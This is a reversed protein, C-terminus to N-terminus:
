SSAYTVTVIAGKCFDQNTGLNNMTITLGTWSGVASGSPVNAGVTATGGLTYHGDAVLCGATVHTADIAYSTATVAAVYTAGANSNNFTGSLTQASQGPYLGTVATQNITVAVNTGSTATGTGSGSNTWYAFAAGGGSLLLITGAAVATTKKTLRHM